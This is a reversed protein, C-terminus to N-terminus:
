SFNASFIRFTVTEFLYMIRLVSDFVINTFLSLQSFKFNGDFRGWWFPLMFVGMRFIGVQLVEVVWSFKLGSFEWGAVGVWSFEWGSFEWRSLEWGPFSGGPFSGGLFNGGPFNGGKYNRCLLNGAPFIKMWGIAVGSLQWGALKIFHTCYNNINILGNTGLAFRLTKQHKWPNSFPHM